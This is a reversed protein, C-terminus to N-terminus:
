KNHCNSFQSSCGMVRGNTSALLGKIQFKFVNLNTQKFNLDKLDENRSENLVFM